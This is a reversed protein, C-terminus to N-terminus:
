LSFYETIGALVATVAVSALIMGMV